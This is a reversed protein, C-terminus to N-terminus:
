SFMRRLFFPAHAPSSSPLALYSHLLFFVAALASPRFCRFVRSLSALSFRGRGLARVVLKARWPVARLRFSLFVRPSARLFPAVFPFLFRRRSGPLMCPLLFFVVVSSSSLPPFSRWLDLSLVAVLRFQFLFLDFFLLCRAKRLLFFFFFARARRRFFMTPSLPLVWKESLVLLM